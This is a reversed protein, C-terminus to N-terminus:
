EIIDDLLGLVRWRRGIHREIMQRVERIAPFELITLAKDGAVRVTAVRFSSVKAALETHNHAFLKSMVRACSKGLLDRTHGYTEVVSEAVFPALLSCAAAGNEASAAALYRRVLRTLEHRETPNAARGYSLNRRDDDNRDGDNDRDNRDGPFSSIVTAGNSSVPTDAALKGSGGCAAVALAATAAFTALAVPRALLPGVRHAAARRRAPTRGAGGKTPLQDDPPAVVPRPDGGQDGPLDM